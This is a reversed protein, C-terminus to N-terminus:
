KQDVTTTYSKQEDRSVIESYNMFFNRYYDYIRKQVETAKDLRRLMSNLRSLMTAAKDLSFQSPIILHKANTVYGARLAATLEQILEENYEHHLVWKAIDDEARAIDHAYSAFIPNGEQDTAYHMRPTDIVTLGSDEDYLFNDLHADEHSIAFYFSDTDYQNLINKFVHSIVDIDKGGLDMYEHMYNDIKRKMRDFTIELVEPSGQKKIAKKSHLEGLFKGLEYLIKKCKATAAPQDSSVFIADLSKRVTEGPARTMALLVNSNGNITCKGLTLFQVVGGEELNLKRMVDHGSIERTIRDFNKEINPFVKIAFEATLFVSECKNIRKPNVCFLDSTTSTFSKLFERISAELSNDKSYDNVRACIERGSEIELDLANEEIRKLVEHANIPRAKKAISFYNEFLAQSLPIEFSAISLFVSIICLFFATFIKCM